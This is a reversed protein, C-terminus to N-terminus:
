LSRRLRLLMKTSRAGDEVYGRRQLESLLPATGRSRPAVVWVVAPLDGSDALWAAFRKAEGAAFEQDTHIRDDIWGLHADTGLPYSMLRFRNPERRLYYQAMTRSGATFIVTDGPRARQILTQAIRDGLDAYNRRPRNTTVYPYLTYAAVGLWVAVAVAALPARLRSLVAGTLLCYAGWAILDYRAVVYLPRRLLSVTLALCLPLLVAGATLALAGAWRADDGAADTAARARLGRYIQVGAVGLVLAALGLSVGGAVSSSAFKFTAWTPYRAGPGLSQLSWPIAYAISREKWFTGIWAHSSNGAQEIFSPLWPAFGIAIALAAAGIWMVNRRVDGVWVACGALPLLFLFYYQTYLGTLGALVFGCFILRTPAVLLRHLTYLVAVALPPVLPYMRAEQCYHVHLPSMAALLAAILGARQSFMRSGVWYILPITAIGLLASLMRIASESDGFLVTWWHMVIYYVPANGEGRLRTLVAGVPLQVSLATYAEDFWLPDRTLGYFRLTAGVALVVGLAAWTLASEQSLRLTWSRAHPPVAVPVRRAPATRAARRAGQPQARKLAKGAM